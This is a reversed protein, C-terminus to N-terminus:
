PDLNNFEDDVVEDNVVAIAISGNNSTQHPLRHELNDM